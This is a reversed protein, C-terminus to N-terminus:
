LPVPAGPSVRASAPHTPSLDATPATEAEHDSDRVAGLILPMVTM